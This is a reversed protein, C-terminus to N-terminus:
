PPHILAVQLDNIVKALLVPAEALLEAIPLQTEIVM